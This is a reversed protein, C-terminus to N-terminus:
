ITSFDYIHEDFNTYNFVEGDLTSFDLIANFAFRSISEGVWVGSIRVYRMLTEPNIWEDNNRLPYKLHDLAPDTTQVFRQPTTHLYKVVVNATNVDIYLTDDNVTIDLNINTNANKADSFTRNRSSSITLVQVVKKVVGLIADQMHLTIEQEGTQTRGSLASPVECRYYNDKKFITGDGLKGVTLSGINLELEQIRTIDYEPNFHIDFSISDGRTM